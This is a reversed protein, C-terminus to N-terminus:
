TPSIMLYLTRLEGDGRGSSFQWWTGRGSPPPASNLFCKPLPLHIPPTHSHNPLQVAVWDRGILQQCDQKCVYLDTTNFPNIFSPYDAFFSILKLIPKKKKKVISCYRLLNILCGGGGDVKRSDVTTYWGQIVENM